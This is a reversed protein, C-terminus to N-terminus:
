KFLFLVFIRFLDQFNGVEQWPDDELVTVNKHGQINEMDDENFEYELPIYM